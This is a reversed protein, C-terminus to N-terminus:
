DYEMSIKGFHGPRPLSQVNGVKHLEFASAVQHSQALAFAALHPSRMM